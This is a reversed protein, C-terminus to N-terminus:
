SVSPIGPSYLLEVVPHVDTSSSGQAPSPSDSPKLPRGGQGCPPTVKPAKFFAGARATSVDSNGFSTRHGPQRSTCNPNFVGGYAVGSLCECSLPLSPLLLGKLLVGHNERKLM